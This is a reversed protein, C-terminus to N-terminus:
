FSMISHLHLMVNMTGYKKSAHFPNLDADLFVKWAAM